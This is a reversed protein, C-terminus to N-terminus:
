CAALTLRVKDFRGERLDEPAITFQYIGEGFLHGIPDRSGIELLLIEPPDIEGLEGQAQSPPALMRNPTPAFLGDESRAALAHRERLPDLAEAPLWEAAEPRAALTTELSRVTAERLVQVGVDGISVLWDWFMDAEEGPVRKHPNHANGWALCESAQGVIESQLGEAGENDMGRKICAEVFAPNRVKEIVTASTIAVARWDHPFNEFPRALGGEPHVVPLHRVAVDGGQARVLEARLAESDQWWRAPDEGEGAAIEVSHPTFPWCPLERPFPMSEDVVEPDTWATAYRAEEGYVPGLDDPLMAPAWDEGPAGYAIVRYAAPDGWTLDLFFYLIGAEPMLGLRADEAIEECDVQMLFHLPNGKADVPWVFEPPVIPTGGYFSFGPVVPPPFAEHLVVAQRLSRAYPTETASSAPAEVAHQAEDPQDIAPEYEGEPVVPVPDADIEVAGSDALTEVESEAPAAAGTGADPEDDALARARLAAIRSSIRPAAEDETEAPATSATEPEEVPLLAEADSAVGESETEAETPATAEAVDDAPSVDVDTIEDGEPQEGAAEDPAASAAKKAAKDAAKEAKRDKRSKKEPKTKPKSVEAGAAERRWPWLAAGGALGLAFVLGVAGPRGIWEVLTGDFFAKISNFFGLFGHFSSGPSRAVIMALVSATLMVILARRTNGPMEQGESLDMPEIGAPAPIAEDKRRFLSIPM